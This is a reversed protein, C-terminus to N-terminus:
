AFGNERMWDPDPPIAHFIDLAVGDPAQAFFHRQGWLEDVPPALIPVGAERWADHLADCDDVEFALVLGDTPRRMAEPLSDHDDACLSLEFDERPRGELKLNVFWGLDATVELGFRAVYFDRAAAVDSCLLMAVDRKIPM